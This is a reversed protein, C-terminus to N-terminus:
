SPDTLGHQLCYKTLEINNKWGTKQLVRARYTGVTKVSLRMAQAIQAPTKGASILLMVRHEQTSLLAHALAPTSKAGLADILHDAMSATVYRRGELLRRLAIVLEHAARDKPLYGSVGMALLRSAFASEANASLVLIPAAGAVRLVRVVGETGTAGPMVLDLVVVDPAHDRVMQVAEDITEAEDIQATPWEQAILQRIGVRIIPHDDAILFKM